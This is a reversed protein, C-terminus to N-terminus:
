VDLQVIMTWTSDKGADGGRERQSGKPDIEDECVVIQNADNSQKKSASQSSYRM